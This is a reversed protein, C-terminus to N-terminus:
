GVPLVQSNFFSISPDFRVQCIWPHRLVEKASARRAPDKVLMMSICEKAAKSVKPWPDQSPNHFLGPVIYVYM